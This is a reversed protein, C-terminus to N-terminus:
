ARTDVARAARESQIRKVAVRSTVDGMGTVLDISAAMFKSSAQSYLAEYNARAEQQKERWAITREWVSPSRIWYFKKSAVNV